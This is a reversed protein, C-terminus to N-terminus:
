PLSVARSCYPQDTDRRSLPSYLPMLASRSHSAHRFLSLHESVYGIPSKNSVCCLLSITNSHFPSRTCLAPSDCSLFCVEVVFLDVRELKMPFYHESFLQLPFWFSMWGLHVTRWSSQCWVSRLDVPCIWTSRKGGFCIKLCLLWFCHFISGVSWPLYACTPIVVKLYLVWVLSSVTCQWPALPRHLLAMLSLDPTHTIPFPRLLGPEGYISGPWWCGMSTELFLSFSWKREACLDVSEGPVESIHMSPFSQESVYSVLTDTHFSSRPQTWYPQYSSFWVGFYSRSPHVWLSITMSAKLKTSWCLWRDLGVRPNSM